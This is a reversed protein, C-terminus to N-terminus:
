QSPGRNPTEDLEPEPVGAKRFLEPTNRREVETVERFSGNSLHWGSPDKGFNNEVAKELEHLGLRILPADLVRGAARMKQKFFEASMQETHKIFYMVDAHDEDSWLKGGLGISKEGLKLARSALWLAYKAVARPELTLADFLPDVLEMLAAQGKKMRDQDITENM